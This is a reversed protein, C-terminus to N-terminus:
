TACHPAVRHFAGEVGCEPSWGDRSPRVTGGPPIFLGGGGGGMDNSIGMCFLCPRVIFIVEGSPSGPELQLDLQAARASPSPARWIHCVVPAEWRAPEPGGTHGRTGM